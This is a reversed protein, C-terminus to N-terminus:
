NDVSTIEPPPMSRVASGPILDDLMQMLAQHDGAFALKGLEDVAKSLPSGCIEDDACKVQYIDPHITPEYPQGEEWLDESLKEGARIGTYVIDIDRGPELGSLRILDEALDLIRVQQGM